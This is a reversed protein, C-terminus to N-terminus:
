KNENKVVKLENIPKTYVGFFRDGNQQVDVFRWILDNKTITLYRKM